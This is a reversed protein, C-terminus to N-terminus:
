GCCPLLVARVAAGYMTLPDVYEGRVRVGLHLSGPPAHGGVSLTAVVQGAAVTSGAAVSSDVPELTIVVGGGHDITLVGRGAVDGAFAITGATPAFVSTSRDPALDIGRHGPGYENAPAVYPVVVRRADLPWTWQAPDEESGVAAPARRDPAAEAASGGVPGVAALVVILCAVGLNMAGSLRVPRDRSRPTRQSITMM